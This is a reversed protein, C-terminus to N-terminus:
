QKPLRIPREKLSGVSEPHPDPLAWGVQHPDERTRNPDTAGLIDKGVEFTERGITQHLHQEGAKGFGLSEGSLRRLM